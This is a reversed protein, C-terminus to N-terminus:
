TQWKRRPSCPLHRHARPTWISMTPRCPAAPLKATSCPSLPHHEPATRTQRRPRAPSWPVMADHGSSLPSHPSCPPPRLTARCQAGCHQVAEVPPPAPSTNSVIAALVGVQGFPRFNPPLTPSLSPIRPIGSLHWPSSTEHVFKLHDLTDRNKSEFKSFKIQAIHYSIPPPM